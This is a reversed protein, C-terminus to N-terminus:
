HQQSHLRMHQHETTVGLTLCHGSGPLYCSKRHLCQSCVFIHSRGLHPFASKVRWSLCTHHRANTPNPSLARFSCQALINSHQMHSLARFRPPLLIEQPSVPFVCLHSCVFIPVCFVIYSASPGGINTHQMHQSLGLPHMYVRVTNQSPLPVASKAECPGHQNPQYRTIHM